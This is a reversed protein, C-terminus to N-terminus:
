SARLGGDSRRAKAGFGAAKWGMVSALEDGEGCTSQHLRAESVQAIKEKLREGIM